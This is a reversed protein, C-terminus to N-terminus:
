SFEEEVEHEQHLLSQEARAAMTKKNQGVDNPADSHLIAPPSPIPRGLCRPIALSSRLKWGERCSGYLPLYSCVSLQRALQAPFARRRHDTGLPHQGARTLRILPAARSIAYRKNHACLPAANM